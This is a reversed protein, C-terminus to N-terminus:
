AKGVWGVCVLEAQAALAPGTHDNSREFFVKGNFTQGDSSSMINVSNHSDRGIWSLLLLDVTAVAADGGDQNNSEENGAGVGISIPIPIPSAPITALAPGANDTSTDNLTVKAEPRLTGNASPLFPIVNLRHRRDRGVWALYLRSNAFSLAATNNDGSTENLTLKTNPLWNVGDRSALLNLRHDKGIWALYLFGNGFALGPTADNPSRENLIVKNQFIQGDSSSVVNLRNDTGQWALYLRQSDCALAPGCDNSKERQLTTKRNDPEVLINLRRDAGTWGIFLRNLGLALAPQETSSEFTIKSSFSQGDDSSFLANLHGRQDRNFLNSLFNGLKQVVTVVIDIVTYIVAILFAISHAIFNWLLQVVTGKFIGPLFCPEGGATSKVLEPHQAFQADFNPDLIIWPVSNICQCPLLGSGQVAYQFNYAENELANGGTDETSLGTITCAVYQEIWAHFALTDASKQDIQLAHVLEHALTVFTGQSCPDYTGEHLYMHIEHVGTTLTIAGEPGLNFPFPISDFFSVRSFDLTPFMKHYAHM